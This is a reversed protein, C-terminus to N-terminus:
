AGSAFLPALTKFGAVIWSDGEDRILSIVEAPPKSLNDFTRRNREKWVEWSALLILTDFGRRFPNPVQARAQLWWDVLSSDNGPCLHQFGVKALLRYWVERVFVCSALLHDTSEDDQDCLACEANQQLGHRKRCEATWLRGHLALWFFFKM